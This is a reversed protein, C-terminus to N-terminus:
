KKNAAFEAKIAEVDVNKMPPKKTLRKLEKQYNDGAAANRLGKRKLQTVGM